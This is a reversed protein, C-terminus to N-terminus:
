YRYSRYGARTGFTFYMNWGIQFQYIRVRGFQYSDYVGAEAERDTVTSMLVTGCGAPLRYGDRYNDLYDYLAAVTTCAFVPEGRPFLEQNRSPTSTVITTSNVVCGSLLAVGALTLVLKKM